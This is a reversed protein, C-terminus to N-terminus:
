GSSMYLNLIIIYSINPMKFLFEILVPMLKYYGAPQATKYCNQLKASTYISNPCVQKLGALSVLVEDEKQLHEQLIM